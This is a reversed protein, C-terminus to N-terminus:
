CSPRIADCDANRQFPGHVRYAYRQGARCGPIFEHWIGDDCNSLFQTQTQRGAADFFCLEVREAAGSYLAFNAGDTEPTSGLQIM